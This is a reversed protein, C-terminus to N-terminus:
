EEVLPEVKADGFYISKCDPSGTILVCGQEDLYQLIDDVQEYTLDISPILKLGERIEEQRAKTKILESM